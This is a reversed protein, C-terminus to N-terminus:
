DHSCRRAYQGGRITRTQRPPPLTTTETNGEDEKPLGCAQLFKDRDFNSYNRELEDAVYNCVTAYGKSGNFATSVTLVLGDVIVQYDKRTM